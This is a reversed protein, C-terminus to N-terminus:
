AIKREDEPDPKPLPVIKIFEKPLKTPMFATEETVLGDTARTIARLLKPTVTRQGTM